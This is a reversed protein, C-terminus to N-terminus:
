KKILGICLFIIGILLVPLWFVFSYEGMKFIIPNLEPGQYTFMGAGLIFMGVGLLTIGTGIKQYISM